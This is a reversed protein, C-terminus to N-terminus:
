STGMSHANVDSVPAYRTFASPGTRVLRKPTRQWSSWPAASRSRVLIAAHLPGPQTGTHPRSRTRAAYSLSRSGQLHRRAECPWGAKVALFSARAADPPPSVSTHPRCLRGASLQKIEVMAATATRLPVINKGQNVMREIQAPLAEFAKEELYEHRDYVGRVGPMVQGVRRKPM